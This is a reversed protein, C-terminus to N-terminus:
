QLPWLYLPRVSWIRKMHMLTETREDELRRITGEHKLRQKTPDAATRDFELEIVRSEILDCVGGRRCLGSREEKGGERVEKAQIYKDRERERKGM